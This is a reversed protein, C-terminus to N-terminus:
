ARRIAHLVWKIGVMVIYLGAIAVGVTVLDAELATFDVGSTLATLPDTM